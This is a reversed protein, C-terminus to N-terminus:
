KQRYREYSATYKDEVNKTKKNAVKSSKNSYCYLCIAIQSM